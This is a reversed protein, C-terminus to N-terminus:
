DRWEKLFAEIEEDTTLFPYLDIDLAAFRCKGDQQPARGFSQHGSLHSTIASEVIEDWEEPSRDIGKKEDKRPVTRYDTPKTKADTQEVVKPDFTLYRNNNGQFLDEFSM